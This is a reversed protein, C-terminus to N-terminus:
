LQADAGSNGNSQAKAQLLATAAAGREAALAAAAEEAALAQERQYERKAIAQRLKRECVLLSAKSESTLTWNSVLGSKRELSLFLRQASDSEEEFGESSMNLTDFFTCALEKRAGGPQESFIVISDPFLTVWVAVPGTEREDDLWAETKSVEENGVEKQLLGKFILTPSFNRGRAQSAFWTASARVTAYLGMVRVREMQWAKFSALQFAFPLAFFMGWFFWPNKLGVAACASLAIIILCTSIGTAQAKAIVTVKEEPPIKQWVEAAVAASEPSPKTKAVSFIVRKLRSIESVYQTENNWSFTM